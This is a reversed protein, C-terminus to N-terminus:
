TSEICRRPVRWVKEGVLVDVFAGREADDDPAGALDADDGGAEKWTVRPRVVFVWGEPNHIPVPKGYRTPAAPLDAVPWGEANPVLAVLAGKKIESTM